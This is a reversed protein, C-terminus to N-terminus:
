PNKEKAFNPPLDKRNKNITRYLDAKELILIDALQPSMCYNDMTVCYGKGLFRDMLHLVIKCSVSFNAFLYYATINATNTLFESVYGTEAECIMFFKLDFKSGKKAIFM